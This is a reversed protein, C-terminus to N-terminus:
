NIRELAANVCSVIFGNISEAGSQMIREKTGKPFRVLVKDYNLKEYKTTARRQAESVKKKQEM